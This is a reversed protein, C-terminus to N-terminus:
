IFFKLSPLFFLFSSHSLSSSFFALASKVAAISFFNPSSNLYSSKLSSGSILVGSISPPVTSLVAIPAVVGLVPTNVVKVVSSAIKSATALPAKAPIM